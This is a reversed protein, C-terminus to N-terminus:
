QISSCVFSVRRAISYFIEDLKANINDVANDTLTEKTRRSVRSADVNDQQLAQCLRNVGLEDALPGISERIHVISHIAM